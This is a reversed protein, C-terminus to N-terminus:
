DPIRFADRLIEPMTPDGPWHLALRNQLFLGLAGSLAIAGIPIGLRRTLQRDRSVRAVVPLNILASAISAIVAGTAATDTDLQHRACLMAAAAVASASSVLGGIVSVLYFGVGGLLREAFTGMIQLGLFILGFKFASQISFPSSLKLKPADLSQEAPRTRFLGWANAGVMLIFPIFSAVIAAPALILLIAANRLIMASTALVVGRQAIRGLEGDSDRDRQALETVTVTSNVLGGLFGTVEFGRAGYMKLLIYNVFGLAAILLVTMWAARPEVLGWKDLPGEPLAPYVVFALIALLIASRVEAETLGKGFGALPEKWALLAVTVVGLASPVFRHGLGTLVGAFVTVVLAAATTLETGQNSRMSHINLVMALLIVFIIAVISYPEGLLGGIGGLIASFGFTRLGAEKGRRERELGIFLGLSLALALRAFTPVYPWIPAPPNM